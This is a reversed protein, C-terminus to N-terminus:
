YSFDLYIELFAEIKFDLSSNSNKGLGLHISNLIIYHAM